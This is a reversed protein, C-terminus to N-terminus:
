THQDIRKTIESLPLRRKNAKVLERLMSLAELYEGNDIQHQRELEDYIWISGHCEVGENRAAEMLAKDGTLLIWNRSKAISLAFADNLSIRDYETALMEATLLEEASLSTVQLGLTSLEMRLTEPSELEEEYTIDSLFFRHNLRFPLDLKNIMVFDFWINSDSSILM